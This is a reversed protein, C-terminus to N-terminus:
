FNYTLNMAPYVKIFSQKRNIGGGVVEQFSSYKEFQTLLVPQIGIRNYVTKNLSLQFGYVVGNTNSKSTFGNSSTNGKGTVYAFYPALFYSTALLFTDSYGLKITPVVIYNTAVFSYAEAQNNLYSAMIGAEARVKKSLKLGCTVNLTNISEFPHKVEQSSNSMDIINWEFNSYLRGTFYYNSSQSFAM